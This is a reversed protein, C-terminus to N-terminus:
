TALFAAVEEFRAEVTQHLKATPKEFWEIELEMRKGSGALAWTGAAAGDVLVIPMGDGRFDYCREMTAADGLRGRGERPYGMTYADWKPLL